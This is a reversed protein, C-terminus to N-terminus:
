IENQEKLDDGFGDYEVSRPSMGLYQKLFESFRKQNHWKRASKRVGIFGGYRKQLEQVDPEAVQGFGFPGSLFGGLRKPIELQDQLDGLPAQSGDSTVEEAEPQRILSSVKSVQKEDEAKSLDVMRSLDGLQKLHGRSRFLSGDWMELPRNAAEELSDLGLLLSAKGTAKNCSGWTASSFLKGECEMVCILLSFDDQHSYLHRHCNLCDRRCDSLTYALLSFFWVGWLLIRM